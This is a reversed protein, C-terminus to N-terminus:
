RPHHHRIPRTPGPTTVEAVASVENRQSQLVDDASLSATEVRKSLAAVPSVADPFDDCEDDSASADDDDTGGSYDGADVECGVAAMALARQGKYVNGAQPQM